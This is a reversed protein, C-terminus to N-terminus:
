SYSLNRQNGVDPLAPQRQRHRIRHDAGRLGDALRCARGPAGAVPAHLGQSCSGARQGDLIRGIGDGGIRGLGAADAEAQRQAAASAVAALRLAAGRRHAARDGGAVIDADRGGAGALVAIEGDGAAADLGAIVRGQFGLPIHHQLRRLVGGLLVAVIAAVAGADAHRDTDTRFGADAEGGIDAGRAAMGVAVIDAVAIGMHLGAIRQCQHGAAVGGELPRDDRAVAHFGIDRTVQGDFAQLVGAGVVALVLADAAADRDADAVHPRDAAADAGALAM